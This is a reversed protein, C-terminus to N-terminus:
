RVLAPVLAGAATPGAPVGTTSCPSGSRNSAGLYELFMTRKNANSEEIPHLMFVCAFSEVAMAGGSCNVVAVTALRRDRGNDIHYQTSSAVDKIDLGTLKKDDQYPAYAPRQNKAFDDFANFKKIWSGKIETTDQGKVKVVEEVYTYAFGSRDPTAKNKENKKYIGFRSNWGEAGPGKNQGPLGVPSGKEPLNCIGPGKLYENLENAGGGKGTLDAWRYQGGTAEDSGPPLVSELWTGVPTSASVKDSCIAVPIACSTIQSPYLTAVASARVDQNGINLVQLFWNAIGTREVECRAFRLDTAGTGTFADRYSGTLTDSFTVNKVAIQEGQFLCRTSNM